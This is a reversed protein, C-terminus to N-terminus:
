GADASDMRDELGRTLDEMFKARSKKRRRIESYIKYIDGSDHNFVRCLARDIISIEIKGDNVAGVSVLAYILEVYATNSFTWRLESESCEDCPPCDSDIKALRKQLYEILRKNAFLKALLLDHSTSFDKDRYYHRSYTINVDRFNARTFYNEDLHNKEQEIYQTFDLNYRFFRNIKDMKKQIYEKQVDQNGVPFQIEFSRLESYYVLNSLPVQKIYKFFHIEADTNKFKFSSIQKKFRYIVDRCKTISLDCKKIVESITNELVNLEELLKESLLVREM